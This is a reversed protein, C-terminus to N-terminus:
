GIGNEPRMHRSAPVPLNRAAAAYLRLSTLLRHLPISFSRIATHQPRHCLQEIQRRIHHGSKGTQLHDAATLQIQLTM